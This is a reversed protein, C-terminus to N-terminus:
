QYGKKNAGAHESIIQNLSRIFGKNNLLDSNAEAGNQGVLDIEGEVKIEAFEVKINNGMMGLWMSLSKLAEINETNVSNVADVAKTIGGADVDKMADGLSYAAAALGILGLLGFPNALAIGMIVLSGALSIIGLSALMLAPGLLMMAGVNEFSVVSFLNVFSDIILAIGAAVFYIAAGMMMMAAGVGMLLLVGIAAFGATAPNGLAALGGALAVLGAAAAEGLLAIGGLGILGATMLTFGVAALSLNLAGLLAQPSGLQTLGRGLASLNKYLSKLKMMGFFALVPIAPVLAVMGVATPILNLAGFLVKPNGMKELGSALSKLPGGSKGKVPSPVEPTAKSGGGMIKNKLFNGVAGGASFIMKFLGTILSPFTKLLLLTLAVLFLGKPSFLQYLKQAFNKLFPWWKTRVDKAFAVIKDGLDDLIGSKTLQDMLPLLANMAVLKLSELVKGFQKETGAYAKARKEEDKARAIINKKETPGLESLLKQEVQGMENMFTIKAGEKTMETMGEFIGRQDKPIDGLFQGLYDVKAAQKATKVLEQYDMGLADASERLRDLEHASMEFEGTSKNFTASEKAAKTLSKALEEPANRANYMLQFPDGLQSMAGGMTQLRAAAEIAGEPRFVKDSVSAVSEMSLKFKESHAAMKALANMGGRFNLKNLLGLNQQFKKIVKLSNVGMQESMAQMDGIFESAQVAGLGFAEMEGVLGGMETNTLGVMHANMAMAEVSKEGLVVARGTEENFSQMMKAGDGISGYWKVVSEEAAYVSQKMAEMGSGSLGVARATDLAAQETGAVLSIIERLSPLMSKFGTVMQNGAAKLFSVSNALEKNHAVLQTQQKKLEAKYKEAAKIAEKDQANGKKKEKNIDKELQLIDDSYKSILKANDKIKKQGERWDSLGKTYREQVKAIENEIRLRELNLKIDEKSAL